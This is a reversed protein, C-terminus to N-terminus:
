GPKIALVSCQIEASILLHTNLEEDLEFYLKISQREESTECVCM